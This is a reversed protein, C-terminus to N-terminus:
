LWVSLAVPLVQAYTVYAEDMIQVSWQSKDGLIPRGNFDKGHLSIQGHAVYIDKDNFAEASTALICILMFSYHWLDGMFTKAGDVSPFYPPEKYIQSLVDPVGSRYSSRKMEMSGM